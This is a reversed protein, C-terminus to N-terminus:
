IKNNNELQNSHHINLSQKDEGEVAENNNKEVSLAAQKLETHLIRLLRNIQDVRVKRLKLEALPDSLLTEPETEVVNANTTDPRTGAQGYRGGSVIGTGSATLIAVAAATVEPPPESLDHGYNRTESTTTLRDPSSRRLLTTLLPSPNPPPPPSPPPPPPLGSNGAAMPVVSPLHLQAAERASAGVGVPTCDM